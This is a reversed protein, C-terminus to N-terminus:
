QISNSFCMYIGGCTKTGYDNYIGFKLGKKHIYDSLYPIGNPFREADGQLYGDETREMASWCDDIDLYQYGADLYGDDALHDAIQTFLKESICTDPKNKCDVVCQFQEWHMWGMPPTLAVGNDLAFCLAIFSLVLLAKM